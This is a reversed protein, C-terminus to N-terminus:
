LQKTEFTFHLYHLLIIRRAEEHPPVKLLHPAFSSARFAESDYLILTQRLLNSFEPM